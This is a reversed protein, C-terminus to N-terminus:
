LDELLKVATLALSEAAILTRKLAFDTLTARAFNKTHIPTPKETIRITAQITPLEQSLNGIDSSAWRGRPKEDLDIEPDIEILSERYLDELDEWIKMERLEYKSFEIKVRNGTAAAAGKAMRKFKEKLKKLKEGNVARLHFEGVAKGPIINPAEGGYTIIGSIRYDNTLHQRYANIANFLEILGSLANIGRDPYSSAHASKGLFTVKVHSLATLEPRVRTRNGPHFMLAYGVDKFIGANIMSIKGVGIEEAPTGIVLIKGKNTVRTTIISAIVSAAAILNHGCGHGIEPLADYEAIFAVSKGGGKTAVFHTKLQPVPPVSVKFGYTSLTEKLLSSSKDEQLAIERFNFLKHVIDSLLPFLLGGERKIKEITKELKSGRLRAKPTSTSM